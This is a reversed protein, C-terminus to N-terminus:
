NMLGLAAQENGATIINQALLLPLLKKMWTQCNETVSKKDFPVSAALDIIADRQARTLQGFSTSQKHAVSQSSIPAVTRKYFSYNGPGGTLHVQQWGQKGHFEPLDDCNLWGIYVHREEGIQLTDIYFVVDKVKDNDPHKNYLTEGPSVQLLPVNTRKTPINIFLHSMGDNSHYYYPTLSSPNTLVSHSTREAEKHSCM